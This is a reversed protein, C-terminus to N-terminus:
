LLDPFEMFVYSNLIQSYQFDEMKNFNSNM